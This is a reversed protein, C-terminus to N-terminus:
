ALGERGSVVGLFLASVLLRGTLARPCVGVECVVACFDLNACGRWRLLGPWRCERLGAGWRLALKELHFRYSWYPM